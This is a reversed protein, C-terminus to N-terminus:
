PATKRTMMGFGLAAGRGYGLHNSLYANTMFSFNSLRTRPKRGSKSKEDFYLVTDYKIEPSIIRVQIRAVDQEPGDKRAVTRIHETLIDEFFRIEDVSRIIAYKENLVRPPKPFRSEFETYKKSGMPLWGSKNHYYRFQDLGMLHNCNYKRDEEKVDLKIWKGNLNLDLGQFFSHWKDFLGIGEGLFIYALKGRLLKYQVAPYDRKKKVVGEATLIKNSWRLDPLSTHMAGKVANLQSPEIKNNTYVIRYDM